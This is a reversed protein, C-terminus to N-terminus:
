KGRHIDLFGPMVKDVVVAVKPPLKIRYITSGDPLKVTGVVYGTTLTDGNDKVCRVGNGFWIASEITSKSLTEQSSEWKKGVKVSWRMSPHFAKWVAMTVESIKSEPCGGAALTQVFRKCSMGEVDPKRKGGRGTTRDKQYSEKTAYDFVM